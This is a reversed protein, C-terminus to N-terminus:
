LQIELGPMRSRAAQCARVARLWRRQRVKRVPATLTVPIPYRLRGHCGSSDERGGEWQKTKCSSGRSCSDHIFHVPPARTVPDVQIHPFGEQSRQDKDVQHLLCVRWRHGFLTVFAAKGPLTNVPRAHAIVAPIPILALVTLSSELLNRMHAQATKKLTLSLPTAWM